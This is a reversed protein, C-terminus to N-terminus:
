IAQGFKEPNYHHAQFRMWSMLEYDPTREVSGYTMAHGLWVLIQYCYSLLGIFNPFALGKKKILKNKIFIM